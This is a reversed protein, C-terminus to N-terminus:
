IEGKARMLASKVLLKSSQYGELEELLYAMEELASLMEPAAAILYANADVENSDIPGNQGMLDWYQCINAIPQRSEVQEIQKNGSDYRWPRKTHTM